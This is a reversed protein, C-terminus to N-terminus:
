RRREITQQPRIIASLVQYLVIMGGSLELERAVVSPASSSHRCRLSDTQPAPTVAKPTSSRPGADPLLPELCLFSSFFWTFPCLCFDITIKGTPEMSHGVAGQEGENQETEGQCLFLLCVLYIYMLLFDIIIEGTPELLTMESGDEVESQENQSGDTNFSIYLDYHIMILALVSVWCQPKRHLHLM